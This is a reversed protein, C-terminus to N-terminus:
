VIKNRIMGGLVIIGGRFGDALRILWFCEWFRLWYIFGYTSWIAQNIHASSINGVSYIVAMVVFGFVLSVSVHGLAGDFTDNAVIVGCGAFVLM